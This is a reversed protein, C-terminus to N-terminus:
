RGISKFFSQSLDKHFDDFHPLGDDEFRNHLKTLHSEVEHILEIAQVATKSELVVKLDEVLASYVSNLSPMEEENLLSSLSNKDDLWQTHRQPKKSFNSYLGDFM